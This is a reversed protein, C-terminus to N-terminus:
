NQAIRPVKQVQCRSPKFEDRLQTVVQHSGETMLPNKASCGQQDTLLLGQM